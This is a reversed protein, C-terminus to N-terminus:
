LNIIKILVFFLCNGRGFFIYLRDLLLLEYASAAVAALESWCISLVSVYALDASGCILELKRMKILTPITSAPVIVVTKPLIM